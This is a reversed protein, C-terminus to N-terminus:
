NTKKTFCEVGDLIICGILCWGILGASHDIKCEADLVYAIQTLGLLIATRM